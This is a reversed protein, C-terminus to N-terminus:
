EAPAVLGPLVHVLGDLLTGAAHPQLEPHHVLRSGLSGTRGSQEDDHVAARHNLVRLQQPVTSNRLMSPLCGITEEAISSADVEDRRIRRRRLWRSRFTPM